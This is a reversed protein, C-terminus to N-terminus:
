SDGRQDRAAEVGALSLIWPLVLAAVMTVIWVILAAFIWTDLGSIRLGESALSTVILAVLTTVLGVAGLLAPANHKALGALIPAVLAQVVAFIVVVAIFSGWSITMDDLVARAVLLGIAASLLFVATRTLFRAM